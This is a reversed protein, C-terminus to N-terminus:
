RLLRYRKLLERALQQDPTPSPLARLYQEMKKHDFSEIEFFVLESPSSPSLCYDSPDFCPPYIGTDWMQKAREKARSFLQKQEHFKRHEKCLACGCLSVKIKTTQIFDMHTSYTAHPFPVDARVSYIRHKPVYFIVGGRDQACSPDEIVECGRLEIFEGPFLLGAVAHQLCTKEGFLADEDYEEKVLDAPWQTKEEPTLFYVRGRRGQSFRMREGM